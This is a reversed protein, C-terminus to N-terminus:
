VKTDKEVVIIRNNRLPIFINPQFYQLVGSQIIPQDEYRIILPVQINKILETNVKSSNQDQKLSLIDIFIPLPFIFPISFKFENFNLSLVYILCNTIHSPIKSNFCHSFNIQSNKNILEFSLNFFDNILLKETETYSSNFFRSNRYAYSCGCLHDIIVKGYSGVEIYFSSKECVCELYFKDDSNKLESYKFHDEYFKEVSLFVHNGILQEFAVKLNLFSKDIITRLFNLSTSTLFKKNKVNYPTGRMISVDSIPLTKKVENELTDLISDVEDVLDSLNKSEVSPTSSQLITNFGKSMLDYNEIFIKSTYTDLTLEIEYSDKFIRSSIGQILPHIDIESSSTISYVELESIFKRFNEAITVLLDDPTLTVTEINLNKQIKKFYFEIQEPPVAVTFNVGSISFTMGYYGSLSIKISKHYEIKSITSNQLFISKSSKLFTSWAIEIEEKNLEILRKEEVRM